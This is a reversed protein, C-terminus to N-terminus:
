PEIQVRLGTANSLREVCSELRLQQQNVADIRTRGFQLSSADAFRALERSREPDARRTAELIFSRNEPSRKIPVSKRCLAALDGDALSSQLMQSKFTIWDEVRDATDEDLTAHTGRAKLPVRPFGHFEYIEAQSEPDTHRSLLGRKQMRVDAVEFQVGPGGMDRNLKSIEFFLLSVQMPSAASPQLLLRLPATGSKRAAAAAAKSRQIQPDASSTSAGSGILERLRNLEERERNIQSSERRIQRRWAAKEQEFEVISKQLLQLQGSLFEEADRGIRDLQRAFALLEERQSRPQDSGRKIIEPVASM